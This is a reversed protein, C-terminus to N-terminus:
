FAFFQFESVLYWTCSRASFTCPWACLSCPGPLNQMTTRGRPASRANQVLFLTHTKARLFDARLETKPGTKVMEATVRLGIIREWFFYLKEVWFLKIGVV